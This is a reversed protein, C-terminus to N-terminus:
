AHGSDGVGANACQHGSASGSAYTTTRGPLRGVSTRVTTSSKQSVM